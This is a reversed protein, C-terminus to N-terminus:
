NNPSPTYEWIDISVLPFQLVFKELGGCIYGKGNLSFATAGCNFANGLNDIERWGLESPEFDFVFFDHYTPDVGNVQNSGAGM